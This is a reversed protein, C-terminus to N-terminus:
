DQYRDKYRTLVVVFEKGEEDYSRLTLMDGNWSVHHEVVGDVDDSVLVNRLSYFKWTGDYPVNDQMFTHTGDEYFIVWNDEKYEELVRDFMGDYKSYQMYWKGYFFDPTLGESQGFVPEFFSILLLFTYITVKM